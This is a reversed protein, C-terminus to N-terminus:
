ERDRRYIRTAAAEQIRRWAAQEDEEEPTRTARYQEAMARDQQRASLGLAEDFIKSRDLGPHTEVFADVSRLLEPNVTVSVKVRARASM